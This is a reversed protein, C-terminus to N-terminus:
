MVHPKGLKRRTVSFQGAHMLTHNAVLGLLHGLTPAWKAMNGSSPKDLDADSMKEVAAITAARTKNFLEVYQAKTGFGKSPDAATKEMAHQEAFGAPLEPYQAGSLNGKVLGQESLILHGIQWAITNAKDVPRVLVDADSLDEILMALIHQTSTLQSKIAETGNM